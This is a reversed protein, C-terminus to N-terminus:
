HTDHQHPKSAHPVGFSETQNVGARRLQEMFASPDVADTLFHVGPKVSGGESILRAVTGPVLGNIWYDRHKDYVLQVTQSLDRGATRGHRM